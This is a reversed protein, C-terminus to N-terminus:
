AAPPQPRRRRLLLAAAGVVVAAIAAAFLAASLYRGNEGARYDAMSRTCESVVPMPASGISRPDYGRQLYCLDRAAEAQRFSSDHLSEARYYGAGLFIAVALAALLAYRIM